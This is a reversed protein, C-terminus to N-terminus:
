NSNNRALPIELNKLTKLKISWNPIIQQCRADMHMGQTRWGVGWLVHAPFSFVGNGLSGYTRSTIQTRGILHVLNPLHFHLLPWRRATLLYGSFLTWCFYTNATILIWIGADLWWGQLYSVAIATAATNGTISAAEQGRSPLKVSVTWHCDRIKM